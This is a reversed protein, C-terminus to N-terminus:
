EGNHKKLTEYGIDTKKMRFRRKTFWQMNESSISLWTHSLQQIIYDMTKFGTYRLNKKSLRIYCNQTSSHLCISAILHVILDTAELGQLQFSNDAVSVIYRWDTVM